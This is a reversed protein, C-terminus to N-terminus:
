ISSSRPVKGSPTCTSDHIFAVVRSSSVRDIISPLMAIPTTNTSTTSPIKRRNCSANQTINPIGIAKRPANASIGATPPETLTNLMKPKIRTSPITTSSAIIMPSLTWVAVSLSPRLRSLTIRPAFRTAIGAVKPTSVVTAVKTGNRVTGPLKPGIGNAIPETTM